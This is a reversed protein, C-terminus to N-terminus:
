CNLLDYDELEWSSSSDFSNTEIFIPVIHNCEECIAFNLAGGDQVKDCNANALPSDFPNSIITLTSEEIFFNSYLSHHMGYDNLLSGGSPSIINLPFDHSSVKIQCLKPIKDPDHYSSM